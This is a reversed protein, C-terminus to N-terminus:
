GPIMAPEAREIPIDYLKAATGTHQELIHLVEAERGAAAIRVFLLLRGEDVQQQLYDADSQHIVKAVLAGVVGVAVVGGVAALLAGGLVAASAVAGGMVGSTGIFFLGGGLSNGAVGVSDREVFAIAPSQASDAAPNTRIYFDSLSEEVVKESALLGLEERKIGAGLLAAIAERLREPDNFIGVAERISVANDTNNM